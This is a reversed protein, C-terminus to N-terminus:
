SENGWGIPQHEAPLEDVARVFARAAHALGDDAYDAHDDDHPGTGDALGHSLVDLAAKLLATRDNIVRGHDPTLHM